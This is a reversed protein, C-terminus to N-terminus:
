ESPNFSAYLTGSLLSILFSIGLAIAGGLAAGLIVGIPQAQFIFMLGLAAIMVPLLFIGLGLMIMVGRFSRQTPDDVDPFLVTVLFVVSCFLMAVLPLGIVSALCYPWLTSRVALCIFAALYVSFTAPMAKAAVEFFSITSPTFPLPKELDVRRLVEIFGSQAIVISGMFVSFTQMALFVMGDEGTDAQGAFLPMIGFVVGILAFLVIIVPNARAQMIVERWLIAFPGKLRLKNMWTLSRAKIKGSRARDEAVAMLDGKQQLRRLRLSDFGRAAAQDYMYNVQTLAVAIAGATLALLGVIAFFFPAWNGELPAMVMTSAATATFFVVHLVPDSALHVYGEMGPNLSILRAIYAAMALIFIAGGYTVIQKNRDSVLDNRNIFLSLAYGISVWCLTMLLYALSMSRFVYGASHPDPLNRIISTLGAATPRWGIIVFLLPFMLALLYDRVLRFLLVLRPNLPTAFLVDVDAPRFSLRQISATTLALMITLLAFGGFAFAQLVRLPPLDFHFDFPLDSQRGSFGTGM